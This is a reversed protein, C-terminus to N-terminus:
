QDGRLLSKTYGRFKRRSEYSPDPARGCISPLAGPTGDSTGTLTSVAAGLADLGAEGTATLHYVIGEKKMKETVESVKMYGPDHSPALVYVLVSDVLEFPEEGPECYRLDGAEKGRLKLYDMADAVKGSETTDDEESFGLLADVGALGGGDAFPSGLAATLRRIANAKAEKFKKIEPKTLNETWALWVAGFDFDNSFVQRAQNFGSVHDKHEHTAVVVDLRAKGNNKGNRITDRIHEVIGTMFAKDRGLAGCDILM